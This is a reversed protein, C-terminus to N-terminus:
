TKGGFIIMAGYIYAIGIVVAAIAAWLTQFQCFNMTATGGFPNPIQFECVGGSAEVEFNNIINMFPANSLWGSILEGINKQVPPDINTDVTTITPQGPITMVSVGSTTGTVPSVDEGTDTDYSKGTGPEKYYGDQIGTKADPWQQATKGNETPETDTVVISKDGLKSAIIDPNNNVWTTVAGEDLSKQSDSEVPYPSGDETVVTVNYGNIHGYYFLQSYGGRKIKLRRVNSQYSGTTKGVFSFSGNEYIKLEIVTYAQYGAYPANEVADSTIVYTGTDTVITITGYTPTTEWFSSHNMLEDYLDYLEYVAFATGIIPIASGICKGVAVKAGGTLLSKSTTEAVAAPLTSRAVVTQIGSSGTIAKTVTLPLPWDASFSMSPMITALIIVGLYMKIKM